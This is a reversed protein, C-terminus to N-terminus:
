ICGSRNISAHKSCTHWAPYVCAPSVEAAKHRVIPGGVLNAIDLRGLIVEAAQKLDESGVLLERVANYEPAPRMSVQGVKGFTFLDDFAAVGTSDM